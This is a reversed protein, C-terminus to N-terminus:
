LGTERKIAQGIIEISQDRTTNFATELFKASRGSDHQLSMDEHQREAYRRTDGTRGYSVAGIVGKDGEGISAAGDRSLDGEEFPVRRNSVNLVNRLALLTGKREGKAANAGFQTLKTTLPGIGRLFEAM